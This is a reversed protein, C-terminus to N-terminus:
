DIWAGHSGVLAWLCILASHPLWNLVLLLKFVRLRGLQVVRPGLAVLALAVLTVVYSTVVYADLLLGLGITRHFQHALLSPSVLYSPLYALVIGATSIAYDWSALEFKAM